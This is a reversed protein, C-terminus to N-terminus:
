GGAENLDWCVGQGFGSRIQGNLLPKLFQAKQEPTGYRDLLEMNGTGPASCNFAEPAIYSRGMTEALPAYELNTLGAGDPSNAPMFLNWLGEAKARAKWEDMIAPSQWRDGENLQDYYVQQNPVIHTDLFGSVRTALDKVKDSYAFNM